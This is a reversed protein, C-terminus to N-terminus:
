ACPRDSEPLAELVLGCHPCKIQASVPIPVLPIAVRVTTGCPCSAEGYGVIDPTM